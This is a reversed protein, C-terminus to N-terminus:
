FVTDGNLPRPDGEDVQGYSVIRRGTADILGVVIGISQHRADIRDILIQRIESDSPISWAITAPANTSEQAVVSGNSALWLGLGASIVTRLM